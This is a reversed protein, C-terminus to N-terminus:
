KRYLTQYVEDEDVVHGNKIYITEGDVRSLDSFNSTLIIVSIGRSQLNAIMEVTIEQLHIDTETFPKICAVVKPAYLYWKYYAIQQLIRPELRRLKIHAIEEINVSKILQDVSKIFRKQFWLLPVKKALALNLNDRVSLNYFLMNEYPSEEVFCVGRDVAQNINNIKYPHGALNIEGSLPKRYGKLLDIIHESSEDDMYYIKTVEGTCISLSLDTLLNTSVNNFELICSSEKEQDIDIKDITSPRRDNKHNMLAASLQRRNIAKTDFIGSTKGHRIVILQEAWEFIINEFQEVILFTMGEKQLQKIFDFIDELENRKLFGTIHILVVIEKKEAYAKILEVLVREKVTLKSVPKDINFELSFKDIIREFERLYKKRHIFKEHNSFVFVNEELHLNSLLKSEKEIITTKYKFYKGLDTADAKRGEIYIRGGSIVSDSKFMEQLCKRETISDFIIALIEKKNIQLNLDNIVPSGNKVLQGNEIVILEEKM